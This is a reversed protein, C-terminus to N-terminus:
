GKMEVRENKRGEGEWERRVEGEREERRGGRGGRRVGEKGRRVGGEERGCRVGEEWVESGRGGRVQTYAPSGGWLLGKGFQGCHQNIRKYQGYMYRDYTYYNNNNSENNNNIKHINKIM